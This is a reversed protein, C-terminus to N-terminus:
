PKYRSTGLWQLAFGSKQHVLLLQAYTWRRTAM